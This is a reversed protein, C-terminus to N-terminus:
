PPAARSVNGARRETSAAMRNVFHAVRMPDHGRGRLRQAITAFREAAEETIGTRTQGPKLSEPNTFVKRLLALSELQEFADLTVEHVEQVTNTFNTHIRIKEMDSVILLPPNELPGAYCLLQEYAAELDHHKDKYEWAFRERRWV